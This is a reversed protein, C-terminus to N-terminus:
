RIGPCLDIIEYLMYVHLALASIIWNSAKQVFWCSRKIMDTNWNTENDKKEIVFCPIEFDLFNAKKGLHLHVTSVCSNSAVCSVTLSVVELAVM